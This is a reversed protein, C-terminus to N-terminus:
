YKEGGGSAIKEVCGVVRFINESIDGYPEMDHVHQGQRYQKTDKEVCGVVRFINEPKQYLRALYIVSTFSILSCLEESHHL